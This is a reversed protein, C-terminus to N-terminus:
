LAPKCSDRATKRSAACDRYGTTVVDGYIGGIMATTRGARLTEMFEARTRCQEERLQQIKQLIARLTSAVSFTEESAAQQVTAQKTQEL